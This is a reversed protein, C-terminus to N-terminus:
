ALVCWVGRKEPCPQQTPWTVYTKLEWSIREWDYKEQRVAEKIVSAAPGGNEDSHAMADAALMITQAEAVEVMEARILPDSLIYSLTM